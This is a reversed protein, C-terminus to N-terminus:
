LVHWVFLADAQHAFVSSRNWMTPFFSRNGFWSEPPWCCSTPTARATMRLGFQDEGVLRGSVQVGRLTFLNHLKELPQILRARCNNLHRVRFSISGVAVPDNLQLVAPHHAVIRGHPRADAFCLRRSRSATFGSPARSSLMEGPGARHEGFKSLLGRNMAAATSVNVRPISSERGHM